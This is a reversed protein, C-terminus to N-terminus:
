PVNIPITVTRGNRLVEVQFRRVNQFQPILGMIQAESEIPIGNVRTIIDGERFGFQSAYPIAGINTATLGLPKGDDDRAIRPQHHMMLEGVNVDKGIDAPLGPVTAPADPRPRRQTLTGRASISLPAEDDDRAVTEEKEPEELTYSFQTMSRSGRYDWPALAAEDAYLGLGSTIAEGNLRRLLADKPANQRDWWAMGHAVLMHSLSVGAENFVLVVPQQQSDVTLAMVDVDENLFHEISFLKSEEHFPQRQEPSDVGYLRMKGASGDHEVIVVDGTVVAVVKGRYTDTAPADIADLIDTVSLEELSAVPKPVDASADGSAAQAVVSITASSALVIFVIATCYTIRM